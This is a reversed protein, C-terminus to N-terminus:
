FFFGLLMSYLDFQKREIQTETGSCRGASRQKEWRMCVSASYLQDGRAVCDCGVVLLWGPKGTRLSFCRCQRPGDYYTGGSRQKQAKSSPAQLEFHQREGNRRSRQPCCSGCDWPPLSATMSINQKPKKNNNRTLPAVSGSSSLVAKDSM